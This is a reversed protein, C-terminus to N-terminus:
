KYKYVTVSLRGSRTEGPEDESLEYRGYGRLSLTDGPFLKKDPRLAEEFNVSALGKKVYGGGEERSLRCLASVVCDLRLSAVSIKLEEKEYHLVFDEPLVFDKKFSLTSRGARKLDSEIYSAVREKVAVVTGNQYHFIEGIASRKLGLSLLAGLVQRHEPLSGDTCTFFLLTIESFDEFALDAYDKSLLVPLSRQCGRVGGEFSFSFSYEKKLANFANKFQKQEAPTM